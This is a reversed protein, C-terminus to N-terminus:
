ELWDIFPENVLRFLIRLLLARSFNWTGSSQPPGVTKDLRHLVPSRLLSGPIRLGLDRGASFRAVVASYFMADLNRNLYSREGTTGAQM